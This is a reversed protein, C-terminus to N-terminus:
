VFRKSYKFLRIEYTLSRRTLDVLNYRKTLARHARPLAWVKEGDYGVTCSDIDFGM